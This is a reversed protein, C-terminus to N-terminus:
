QKVSAQDIKVMELLEDYGVCRGKIRVLNNLAVLPMTGEIFGVQVKDNLVIANEEVLSVEGTIEIVKDLYRTTALSENEQFQNSIEEAIISISAEEEAINRHASNFVYNYIIISSVTALLIIALVILKKKKM